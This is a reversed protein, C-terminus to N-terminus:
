NEDKNMNPDIPNPLNLPQAKQRKTQFLIPAQQILKATNTVNECEPYYEQLFREKNLFASYIQMYKLERTTYLKHEKMKKMRPNNFMFPDSTGRSLLVGGFVLDYRIKFWGEARGQFKLKFMFDIPSNLVHQYDKTVNEITCNVGYPEEQHPHIPKEEDIVLSLQISLRKTDCPYLFSTPFQLIQPSTCLFPMVRLFMGAYIDEVIFLTGGEDQMIRSKNTINLGPAQLTFCCYNDQCKECYIWFQQTRKTGKQICWHLNYYTTSIVPPQEKTLLPNPINGDSTYM